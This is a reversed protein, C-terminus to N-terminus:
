FKISISMQYDTTSNITTKDSTTLTFDTTIPINTNLWADFGFIRVNNNYSQIGFGGAGYSGFIM